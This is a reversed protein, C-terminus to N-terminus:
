ARIRAEEAAPTASSKIPMLGTFASYQVATMLPSNAGKRRTAIRITAESLFNICSWGLERRPHITTARVVVAMNTDPTAINKTYIASKRAGIVCNADQWKARVKVLPSRNHVSETLCDTFTQDQRM